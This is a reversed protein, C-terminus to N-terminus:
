CILVYCAVWGRVKFNWDDRIGSMLYGFSSLNIIRAGKKAALLKEMLLNTLLFHGIHNVGFQLEIGEATTTYDKTAMVLYILWVGHSIGEYMYKSGANNILIDLSDIQSIVQKAAERISSQSALNLRVFTIPVGPSSKSIKDIVPQVKSKDRGALIILKPKGVALSM